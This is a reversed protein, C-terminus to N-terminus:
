SQMYHLGHRGPPGDADVHAPRLQEGARDVQPKSDMVADLATHVPRSWDARRSVATSATSSARSGAPESTAATPKPMGQRISWRVRVPPTATLRGNSSMGERGHHGLPQTQRHKDIVVRIDGREGLMARSRREPALSATTSVIPM